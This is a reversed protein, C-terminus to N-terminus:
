DAPNQRVAESLLQPGALNSLDAPNSLWRAIPLTRPRPSDNKIKSFWNFVKQAQM